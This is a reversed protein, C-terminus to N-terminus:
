IGAHIWNLPRWDPNAERVLQFPLLFLLLAALTVFTLPASLSADPAPRCKWRLWLLYLIFVRVFPGFEYQGNTTWDVRIRLLFQVWFVLTVVALLWLDSRTRQVPSFDDSALQSAAPM